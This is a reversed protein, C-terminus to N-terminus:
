NSWGLALLEEMALGPMEVHRQTEVITATEPLQSHSRSVMVVVAPGSSAELCWEWWPWARLMEWIGGGGSPLSTHVRHKCLSCTSLFRQLCFDRKNPSKLGWGLIIKKQFIQESKEAFRPCGGLICSVWNLILAFGIQLILYRCILVM